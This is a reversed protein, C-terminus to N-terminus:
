VLFLGLRNVTGGDLAARTRLSAVPVGDPDLDPGHEPAVVRGLWDGDTARSAAPFVQPSGGVVGNPDGDPGRQPTPSGSIGDSQAWAAVPAALLGVM